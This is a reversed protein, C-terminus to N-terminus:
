AHLPLARLGPPTSDLNSSTIVVGGAGRFVGFGGPTGLFNLTDTVQGASYLALQNNFACSDAPVGVLGIVSTTTTTTEFTLKQRIRM